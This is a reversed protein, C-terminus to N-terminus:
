IIVQDMGPSGQIYRLSSRLLRFLVIELFFSFRQVFFEAPLLVAQVCEFMGMKLGHTLALPGLPFPNPCFGHCGAGRGKSTQFLSMCRPFARPSPGWPRVRHVERRPDHVNRRLVAHPQRPRQHLHRPLLRQLEAHLGPRRHQPWPGPSHFLAPSQSHSQTPSFGDGPCPPPSKPSFYTKLILNGLCTVLLRCTVSSM